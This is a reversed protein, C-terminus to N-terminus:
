KDFGGQGFIGLFNKLLLLLVIHGGYALADAPHALLKTRGKYLEPLNKGRARIDDRFVHCLLQLLQLIGDRRKRVLFRAIHDFGLKAVSDTM